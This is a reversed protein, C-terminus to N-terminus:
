KTIPILFNRNERTNEYNFCTSTKCPLKSISFRDTRCVLNKDFNRAFYKTFPKAQVIPFSYTFLHLKWNQKWYRFGEFKWGSNCLFWVVWIIKFILKLILISYEIDRFAHSCWLLRHAIAMCLKGNTSFIYIFFSRCVCKSASPIFSQLNSINCWVIHQWGLKTRTSLKITGSTRYKM